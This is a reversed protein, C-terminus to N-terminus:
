LGGGTAKCGRGSGCGAWSLSVKLYLIPRLGSLANIFTMKGLQSPFQCVPAVGQFRKFTHCGIHIFLCVQYVLGVSEPAAAEM